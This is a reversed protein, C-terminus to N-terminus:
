QKYNYNSQDEAVLHPNLEAFRHHFEPSYFRLEMAETIEGPADSHSAYGSPASGDLKRLLWVRAHTRAVVEHACWALGVSLAATGLGFTLWANQRGVATLWRDVLIAALPTAMAILILELRQEARQLTEVYSSCLRCIPLPLTYRLRLWLHRSVLLAHRVDTGPREGCWGCLDPIEVVQRDIITRRSSM